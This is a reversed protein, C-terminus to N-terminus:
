IYHQAQANWLAFYKGDKDGLLETHTGNQVIEGEHFVIIRECFHCSSMRHSIFVITKQDSIDNFKKYVDFEAAPDLASTPEDLVIFPANKYLARALALKQAEGGSIEIGQEDFDRYICTETGEPLESLRERFGSKIICNEVETKDYEMSAAINQGIPCSFLQFDQFVVSFVSCYDQYIYEQINIGNLLIEGEIPNYLRCLLKIFTTKGSGNMGVIAIREGCKFKLSINKLAYNEAGPYRFSVNRFEFEYSDMNHELKKIDIPITGQELRSPINFYDFYVKLAENNSRLLTFQTMLSTLGNTFENISGVYRLIMGVGFIGAFAKLGVFLYIFMSIVITLVTMITTYKTQNKVLKNVTVFVNSHFLRISEDEILDKQNYLRIDKGAHYTTIYNDLYYSFIRNFPIIENLIDYMKKTIKNNARMSIYVNLLIFIVLIVSFAPSAIFGYFGAQRPAIATFLSYTLSISFAITIFAKLMAQFSTYLCIIGKGSMNQLEKIRDKQRHTMPNEIDAYNMDMFKRSLKMEYRRDFEYKWINIIYNLGRIIFIVIFNLTVTIIAYSLLTRWNKGAAIGDIILASMYINIFPSVAEFITRFIVLSLLFKRLNRIEKLGKMIMLIDNKM